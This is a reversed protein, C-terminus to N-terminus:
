RGLEAWFACHHEAALDVPRGGGEGPALSRVHPARDGATTFRPWRPGGGKGLAGAAAFGTWSGIMERSLRRRDADLKPPVGGLDFLYWLESAHQAGMPMLPPAPSLAPPNPDAFEYAYM